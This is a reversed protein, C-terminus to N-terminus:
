LFGLFLALASLNSVLARVFARAYPLSRGTAANLV